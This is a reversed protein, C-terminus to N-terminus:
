KFKADNVKRTLKEYLAVSFCLGLYRGRLYGMEYALSMCGVVVASLEEGTESSWRSCFECAGVGAQDGVKDAESEALTSKAEAMGSRYGRLYGMEYSFSMRDVVVAPLEEGTESSWRGVFARSLFRAQESVQAAGVAHEDDSM